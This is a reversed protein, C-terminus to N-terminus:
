EVVRRKSGIGFETSNSGIAGSKIMIASALHRFRVFVVGHGTRRLLNQLASVPHSSGPLDGDVQAPASSNYESCKWCGKADQLDATDFGETFWDYVPELLARADDIQREEAVHPGHQDRCAAGLVEGAPRARRRAGARLLERKLECRADATSALARGQDSAGRGRLPTRRQAPGM